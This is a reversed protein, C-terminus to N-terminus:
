CLLERTHGLINRTDRLMLMQGMIQEFMSGSPDQKKSDDIAPEVHNPALLERNISVALTHIELVINDIDDLIDKIHQVRPECACESESANNIPVRMQNEKEKNSPNILDRSRFYTNCNLCKIDLDKVNRGIMRRMYNGSGCIPCVINLPEFAISTMCEATYGDILM